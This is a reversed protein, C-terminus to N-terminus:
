EAAQRPRSSKYAAIRRELEPRHLYDLPLNLRLIPATVKPDDLRNVKNFLPLIFVPAILVTFALFLFTVGAGWFHWTRPAKRAIGFLATILLGGLVMGVLLGKAQDGMWPGFTQTALGYQHERFYDEYVALPFGLITTVVLYEVWYILTQLPKFRTLREAFDRMRASWRFRLLLLAVGAGYLFEWLILWYGGEFYADSRAKAEAPIEALYAETAAEADFHDSAQAAAPVTVVSPMTSASPGGPTAAPQASAALPALALISLLLPLHLRNRLNM